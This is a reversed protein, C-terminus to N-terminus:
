NASRMERRLRQPGFPLHVTVRSSGSSGTPVGSATAM